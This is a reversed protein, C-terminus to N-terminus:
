LTYGARAYLRDALARDTAAIQAREAASVRPLDIYGADRLLVRAEAPTNAVEYISEPMLRVRTTSSYRSGVLRQDAVNLHSQARGFNGRRTTGESTTYVEIPTGDSRYGITTRELRRGSGATTQRGIGRSTTVGSAGRRASVVRSPDAGDRIAQAGAKTFIREQEAPSLSDFYDSATGFTGEPAEHEVPASTCKCAPHRKFATKYDSVGALIACRSCAGPNIVRVYETYGRGTASVAASARGLDAVVTKIMSALYSAGSEFAQMGLGAGVGQKTTTVAGYLLGGVSRGAGDVNTFSEPILRSPKETFGYQSSVQATFRDAGKAAELQAGVVQQAVQPGVEAWSADLADFNMSRWLRTSRNTALDTIGILRNQRQEALEAVTM